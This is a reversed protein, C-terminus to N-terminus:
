LVDCRSQIACRPNRTRCRAPIVDGSESLELSCGAGKEYMVGLNTQAAANGQDALPQFLGLATAFDGRQYAAVGDEFQGARIIGGSVTLMLGILVTVYIKRM